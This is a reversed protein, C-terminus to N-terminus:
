PGIRRGLASSSILNNYFLDTFIIFLGDGPPLPPAGPVCACSHRIPSLPHYLARVRCSLSKQQLRVLSINNVPFLTNQPPFQMELNFSFFPALRAPLGSVLLIAAPPALCSGSLLGALACAAGQVRSHLPGPSLVRWGARCAASALSGLTGPWGRGWLLAPVPLPHPCPQPSAPGAPCPGPLAPPSQGPGRGSDRHTGSAWGLPPASAAGWGRHWGAASPARGLEIGAFAEQSSGQAVLM